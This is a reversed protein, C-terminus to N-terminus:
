PATNRAEIGKVLELLRRDAVEDGPRTKPCLLLQEQGSHYDEALIRLLRAARGKDEDEEWQMVAEYAAKLTSAPSGIYVHRPDTPLRQQTLDVGARFGGGLM